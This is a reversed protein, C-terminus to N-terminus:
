NNPKRGRKKPEILVETPEKAQALNDVSIKNQKLLSAVVSYHMDKKTGDDFTVIM